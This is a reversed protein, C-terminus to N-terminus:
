HEHGDLGGARGSIMPLGFMPAYKGDLFSVV